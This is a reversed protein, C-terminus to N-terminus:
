PRGGQLERLRRELAQITALQGGRLAKELGRLLEENVRSRGDLQAALADGHRTQEQFRADFRALAELVRAQEVGQRVSRWLLLLLLAAILLSLIIEPDM